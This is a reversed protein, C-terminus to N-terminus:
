KVVIEDDKVPKKARSPRKAPKDTAKVAEREALAENVAQKILDKLDFQSEDEAENDVGCELCDPDGCGKQQNAQRYEYMNELREALQDADFYFPTGKIVDELDSESLFGSYVDEYLKRLQKRSFNAHEYIDTDKAVLGYTSTHIMLNSTDDLVHEECSLALISGASSCAPGIIAVTHAPTNFLARKFLMATDLVGGDTCIDLVITDMETSTNILNLEDRYEDPHGIDEYIQIVHTNAVQQTTSIRSPKQILPVLNENQM